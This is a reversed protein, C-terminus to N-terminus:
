LQAYKQDGIRRSHAQMLDHVTSLDGDEEEDDFDDDDDDLLADKGRIFKRDIAKVIHRYDSWTLRFGIRAESETTLTKTIVNTGWPKEKDAFLFGHRPTEPDIMRRFPIVDRLYLGLM